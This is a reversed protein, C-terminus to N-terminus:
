SLWPHNLLEKASEREEPLWHLMRSVFDLFLEKDEGNLSTVSGSLTVNSPILDNYLFEGLFFTLECDNNLLTAACRRLQLFTWQFVRPSNPL